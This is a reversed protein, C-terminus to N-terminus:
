PSSSTPKKKRRLIFDYVDAAAKVDSPSPRHVEERSGFLGFCGSSGAPQLGKLLTTLERATPRERPRNLCCLDIIRRMPVKTDKYLPREGRRLAAFHQSPNSCGPIRPPVEEFLFYFVMGLSFVDVATTYRRTLSDGDGEDRAAQDPQDEAMVHVEPAM